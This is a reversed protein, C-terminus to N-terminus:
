KLEKNNLTKNGIESIFFNLALLYASNSIMNYPFFNEVFKISEVFKVLDSEVLISDCVFKVPISISASISKIPVYVINKTSTVPEIIKIKKALTVSKITKIKRM